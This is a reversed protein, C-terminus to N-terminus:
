SGAQAQRALPLSVAFRAGGGPADGIELTGEAEEVLRRSIALGLGGPRDGKSSFFPEFIRARSGTPIGPGDDDVHVHLDAASASAALRVRGGDPTAEIANLTLNLIVQCLTDRSVPAQPLDPAPDCVLTVGQELARYELLRAVSALVESVAARPERTRDSPGAHELVLDLLGEMRRVEDSVLELFESRFEPDDIRSPLLQLFTKVAVLPNRIEHAIEALLDGLSALRDLRQVARDLVDLRRAAAAAAAPRAQWRAWEDLAALTRPRVGGAPDDPGALLLLALPADDGGRLPVAAGFGQHQRANALAPPLDPQGLDTAGMLECVADRAGEVPAAPAGDSFRAALVFAEGSPRWAWVGLRTAGTARALEDLSAAILSQLDDSPRPTPPERSDREPRPSLRSAYRARPDHPSPGGM